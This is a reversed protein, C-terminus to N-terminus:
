RLKKLEADVVAAYDRGCRHKRKAASAAFIARARTFQRIAEAKDGRLKAVLALVYAEDDGSAPALRAAEDLKGMMVLAEARVAHAAQPQDKEYAFSQEYAAQAQNDELAAHSRDYALRWWEGHRPPGAAAAAEKFREMCKLLYTEQWVFVRNEFEEDLSRGKRAFELAEAYRGQKSRLSAMIQYPHPVNPNLKLGAATHEEAEALRDFHFLARGYNQRASWNSPDLQAAKGYFKLAEERHNSRAATNGLENYHDSLEKPDDARRVNRAAGKKNAEASSDANQSDPGKALAPAALLAILLLHRM